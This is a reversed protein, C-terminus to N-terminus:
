HLVVPNEIWTRPTVDRGWRHHSRRNGYTISWPSSPFPPLPGSGCQPYPGSPRAERIPRSPGSNADFGPTRQRGLGSGPPCPSVRGHTQASAQRCSFPDRNRTRAALNGKRSTKEFSPPTGKIPDRTGRSERRVVYSVWCGMACARGRTLRRVSGDSRM